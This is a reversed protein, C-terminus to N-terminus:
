AEHHQELCKIPATQHEEDVILNAILSVILAAEVAM